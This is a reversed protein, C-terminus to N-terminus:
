FLLLPHFAVPWVMIRMNSSHGYKVHKSWLEGVLVDIARTVAFLTLDITRGAFHIQRSQCGNATEVIVNEIYSSGHTSQLLKLSYYAAIFSSLWM